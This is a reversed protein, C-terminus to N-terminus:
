SLVEFILPVKSSAMSVGDPFVYIDSIECFNPSFMNTAFKYNQRGLVIIVSKDAWQNVIQRRGEVSCGLDV